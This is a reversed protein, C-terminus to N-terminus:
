RLTREGLRSAFAKAEKLTEAMHTPPTENM